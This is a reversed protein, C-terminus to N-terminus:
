KPYIERYTCFTQITCSICPDGPHQLNEGIGLLFTLSKKPLMLSSQTLTIGIQDAPMINFIQAQGASVEWGDMGPVLPLSTKLGQEAAQAEFMTCAANALKEAAASGVGSVALGLIPNASMQEETFDEIAAGVTCVVILVKDAGIMHKAFLPGNLSGVGTLTLTDEDLSAIEFEEYMVQPKLHHYGVEIAQEAITVLKPRRAQVIEPNGGQGWIVENVNIELHEPKWFQM